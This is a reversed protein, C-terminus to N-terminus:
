MCAMGVGAILFISTTPNEKDLKAADSNCAHAREILIAERKHQSALCCKDSSYCLSLLQQKTASCEFTDIKNKIARAVWM